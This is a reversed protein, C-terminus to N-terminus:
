LLNINETKINGLFLTNDKSEITSAIFDEGGIYLM